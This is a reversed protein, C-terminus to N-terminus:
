HKWVFQTLHLKYTLPPFHVRPAWKPRTQSFSVQITKERPSIRMHRMEGPSFSAQITKERPFKAHTANRGPLFEGTDNEGPSFSAHTANRGPLFEGTDNEGPSFSAHTVNRGPLFEGTDNEGPSFSAHTANRGSKGVRSIQVHRIEGQPFDVLTPIHNIGPLISCMRTGGLPFHLVINHSNQGWSFHSLYIQKGPPRQV